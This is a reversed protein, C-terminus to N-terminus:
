KFERVINAAHMLAENYSRDGDPRLESLIRLAIRYQLDDHVPAAAPPAPSDESEDLLFLDFCTDESRDYAGNLYHEYTYGNRTAVVAGYSSERVWHNRRVGEVSRGDRTVVKAGNLAAELDFPKTKM